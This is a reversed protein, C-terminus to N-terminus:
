WVTAPRNTTLMMVILDRHEDIEGFTLSRAKADVLEPFWGAALVAWEERTVPTGGPTMGAEVAPTVYKRITGRDIGLSEAVDIKSRGAYWHQLVEVIDIMGFLSRAM